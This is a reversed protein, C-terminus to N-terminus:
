ENVKTCREKSIIDYLFTVIYLKGKSKELYIKEM